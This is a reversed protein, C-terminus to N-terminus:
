AYPKQGYVVYFPMYAHTNRDMYAKRVSALFVDVEMKSWGLQRTLPGLAIAELGDMLVARWFNGTERLQRNRPWPGIPTYFIRETVNIFGAARMREAAKPADRFQVRAADMGKAVIDWYQMRASDPQLTGDDCRPFHDIEQSEHWGGPKLHRFSSTILSM